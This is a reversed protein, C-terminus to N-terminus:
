TNIKVIAVTGARPRYYAKSSMFLNHEHGIELQNTSVQDTDVMKELGYMHSKGVHYDLPEGAALLGALSKNLVLDFKSKFISLWKNISHVATDQIRSHLIAGPMVNTHKTTVCNIFYTGAPPKRLETAVVESFNTGSPGTAFRDQQTISGNSNNEFSYRNPVVGWALNRIFPRGSKFTYYKGRLPNNFINSSDRQDGATSDALTRNQIQISSEGKISIYLDRANYVQTAITCEDSKALVNPFSPHCVIQTMKRIQNNAGFTEVLSNSLRIACAEYSGADSMDVSVGVLDSPNDGEAVYYYRVGWKAGNVSPMMPIDYFSGFDVKAKRMFFRILAYCMSLYTYYLPHTVGGPYMCHFGVYSEGREIKLDVKYPDQKTVKRGKTVKKVPGSPLGYGKVKRSVNRAGSGSRYSPPRSSASVVTGSNRSSFQNVLDSLLSGAARVNQPTILSRAISTFGPGHNRRRKRSAVANVMKVFSWYLPITEM